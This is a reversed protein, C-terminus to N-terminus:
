VKQWPREKVKPWRKDRALRTYPDNACSEVSREPLLDSALDDRVFFANFGFRHTGVLRYGRGRALKAMALLSAGFFDDAHSTISFGANYPATLAQDPPITNNIECVIVRPNIVTIANWIWYDMGDLDLSLLDIEGAVGGSGGTGGSALLANVNEATVWAHEFRPPHLSTDPHRRYFMRGREVSRRDGDVLLGWWGHNIILNATNCQIGDGACIEVCVRNLPPILSFIYLLIGDEEFQSYQRFGVEAFSPLRDRPGDRLMSYHRALLIQGPKSDTQAKLWEQPYLRLVKRRLGALITPLM